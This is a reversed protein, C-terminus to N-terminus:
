IDVQRHGHMHHSPNVRMMRRKQMFGARLLNEVLSSWHLTNGDHSTWKCHETTQGEDTYRMVEDVESTFMVAMFASDAPYLIFIFTRPVIMCVLDHTVVIYASLRVNM